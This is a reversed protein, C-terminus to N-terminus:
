QKKLTHIDRLRVLAMSARDGVIRSEGGKGYFDGNVVYADHCGLLSSLITTARPHPMQRGLFDAIAGFDSLHEQSAMAQVLTGYALHQKHQAAILIRAALYRSRSLEDPRNLEDLIATEVNTHHLLEMLAAESEETEVESDLWSSANKASTLFSAITEPADPALRLLINKVLLRCNKNRGEEILRRHLKPDLKKGHAIWQGIGFAAVPNIQQDLYLRSELVTLISSDGEGFAAMASTAGENKGALLAHFRPKLDPFSAPHRRLFAVAEISLDQDSDLAALVVPTWTAEIPEMNQLARYAAFSMEEYTDREEDKPSTVLVKPRFLFKVLAPAASRAQHGLKGLSKIAELRVSANLDNLKETLQPVFKNPEDSIDGLARVAHMRVIADPDDIADILTPVSASGICGLSKAAADSVSDTYHVLPFSITEMDRLATRLFPVAGEAEQGIRGLAHAAALRIRINSSRLQDCLVSVASVAEGELQALATICSTCQKEGISGIAPQPEFATLARLRDCNIKAAREPEVIINPLTTGRAVFSLSLSNVCHRVNKPTLREGMLSFGLHSDCNACLVKNRGAMVDLTVADQVSDDFCAWGCPNEFKHAADFLPANCRRCLYIGEADHNNYKGSFAPETGGDIMIRKEAFTLKNYKPEDGTGSRSPFIWLVVILLTPSVLLRSSLPISKRM